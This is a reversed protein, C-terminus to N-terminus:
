GLFIDGWFFCGVIGLSTLNGFQKAEILSCVRSVRDVRAKKSRNTFQPPGEIRNSRRSPFFCM